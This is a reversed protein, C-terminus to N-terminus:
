TQQFRCLTQKPLEQKPGRPTLQKEPWHLENSSSEIPNQVESVCPWAIEHLFNKYKLKQNTNLTTPLFHM